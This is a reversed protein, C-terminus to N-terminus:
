GLFLFLGREQKLTLFSRSTICIKNQILVTISNSDQSLIRKKLIFQLGNKNYNMETINM